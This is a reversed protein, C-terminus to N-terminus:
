VWGKRGFVGERHAKKGKEKQIEERPDILTHSPFWTVKGRSEVENDQMNGEIFPHMCAM